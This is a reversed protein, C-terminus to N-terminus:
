KSVEEPPPTLAKVVKMIQIHAKEHVYSEACTMSLGRRWDEVRYLIERKEDKWKEREMEVAKVREADLEAIVEAPTGLLTWEGDGIFKVRNRLIEENSKTPQTM